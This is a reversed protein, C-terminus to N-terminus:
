TNEGDEYKVNHGYDYETNELELSQKHNDKLIKIVEKIGELLAEEYTSYKTTDYLAGRDRLEKGMFRLTTGFVHENLHYIYHITIHVGWEERLWKQAEYLLIPVHKEEGNVKIKRIPFGLEKLAVCTENNCYDNNIFM